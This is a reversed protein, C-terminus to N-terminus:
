PRADRNRWQRAGVVGLAILWIGAVIVVVSHAYNLPLTSSNTPRRGWATILPISFLVVLGTLAMAARIPGRHRPGLLAGVALGVLVLTPALV